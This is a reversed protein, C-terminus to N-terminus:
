QGLYTILAYGNGSRAGNSMSGGTVGGIYGSGGGGSASALETSSSYVYGAGGGYRGGGGGPSSTCSQNYGGQGFTGVSVYDIYTSNNVSGGTTQTGGYGGTYSYGKEGNGGTTGGGTGGPWISISDIGSYGITSYYGGGGGGGAVIIDDNKTSALEATNIYNITSDSKYINLYVDQYDQPTIFEVKIHDSTKELIKVHQGLNWYNYVYYGEIDYTVYIMVEPTVNSLNSGHIVSIYRGISLAGYNVRDYDSGHVINTSAAFVPESKVSTAGGGAGVFYTTTNYTQSGLGANGGGNYGGYLGSNSGTYLQTTTDGQGGVEVYVKQGATLYKTGTAYGGKGGGTGGGQAGYVELKYNGTYPATFTQSGGTYNFTYTSQIVNVTRTVSVAANGANDSVNYTVYYTGVVNPNVNSSVAISGSIGSLNDTATAGADSYTSGSNITVTSSGNMTIIPKTIDEKIVYLDSLPSVNGANDISRIIINAVYNTNIIWNNSINGWNAGNDASAQYKQIGSTTDNSSSTVTINNKSWSGSVYGNLNVTPKTPATADRKITYSSLSASINGANDITRIIINAVYDTNIIWNSSIDGWNAGNDASAQYKQLGSNGDASSSTITVNGNTWVGSTYGNLNVTPTTPVTNDINFVNTRTITTNGSTDKGIIWLYYGGTVGAPSTLTGGNTFTTTFSAETPATTSTNWLYKLSSTNIGTHADSVTVTTSRSKAWTTSGNTGFAVTPIVNDIVNVTRTKTATNNANDKVTYTITYTGAVSPNVTGTVVIKSTVDGDVDDTATAGADVYTGNVNINTPNSGNLTIVPALVDVVNITRTVSTAANGANDNVNYTITYTGVISPNVSGTSTVSGSIGSNTDAATAGADTYTSGKNVTVTSSGNMTIVPKTNDLNFVNTKVVATNGTNDKALIWLYYGGTVGVPSTLTGGGTFTTTFSAETPATTSTNWLYKLSSANVGGADSVTVTTSRSKAWTTSGNTGFAVTPAVSDIVNVTRTVSIANNGANDSVNYTITYTGIVNPNVSGTSTVSGSIGSNADTATAGADTYANGVNVTAPSSGNMTIVPITNDLNFVNSRTIMTNGVTDKALIWLYYGGTVGATSTITGGNTFTTTFSVETPATTSTNWLYKLSSTNVSSHADSVTVTTSRSKAWTTSGNTGFAVTPATVDVVTVTRTVSVAANGANDSVNYTITYTGATNTNVSGTTTVSGSIGSNADSATAGADTYTTGANITVPTSGTLAIIPKTNDLNFVNTRAILTNGVTDKGLIWLYYGGTVGAPSTLTGGNTFTTTFSAETPATTSTNWLYKLSSTNVGTHADSVTVTTSRSKAWTTSGNTGFAVTPIVNDIVNVTRTKTSTNNANDKVTYTITYSGVVSPNVTGTVVIKSTVDGDVDDLATAGADAYTGNVNINTPNSGNITIVPATVDIVNITRTVPTAANGANDNVNYTITYTGVISPNVSGTSTVSGSIGSNTDTATAGADTYTSGKNVTVTSSGNMTIVPKTNDINFINTKTILINGVNDKALIWLYYGGTVGAPSTITGGNTFTTTFSVETPATTSTTWQCKLSSANVGTHADSVTVTTSRSKAWITSGNTGFAVTPIVNDIINITRTVSTAANGAKDSVNYTITYTGVVNTNVSGTSTVSGNVGSNADTATAGADTYTNGVNVTVPTSGNMTIVPKTNDLNFINTKTILINGATDKALIWLYYGGTVGVPSTITGGNTFSTTFTAETPATTSTNWLYELSSTNVGSIDSVTVTTNRSKAWTTSGNTGFAVTPAINDIVNVTRTATQENGADDVVSYTVTYAGPLATNV